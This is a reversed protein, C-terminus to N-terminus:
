VQVIFLCESFLIGTYTCVLERSSVCRRAIGGCWMSRNGCLSVRCGSVDRVVPISAASIISPSGNVSYACVVLLCIFRGAGYLPCM